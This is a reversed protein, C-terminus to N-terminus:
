KNNDDCANVAYQRSFDSKYWVNNVELGIVHTKRNESEGSATDFINIQLILEFNHKRYMSGEGSM